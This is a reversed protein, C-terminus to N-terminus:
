LRITKNYEFSYILREKVKKGTLQSLADEYLELQKKYRTVLMDPDKVRDTKYDLLVLEGEEEWYADIVGQILVTEEKPFAPDLIDAPVGMFFPQERYLKGAKDAAKMRRGTECSLIAEMDKKNILATEEKKMRGEKLIRKMEEEIVDSTIDDPLKSHDLLEMFRHYATGREAGKGGDSKTRAEEKGADILERAEEDEYAAKKLESVSTKMYLGKIGPHAYLRTRGEEILSIIEPDKEITGKYLAEGKAAEQGASQKLEKAFCDADKLKICGAAKGSRRLVEIIWEFAANAKKITISELPEECYSVDPCKKVAATLILKERARTLAVYLVRMEEALMDDKIRDAILKKKFSKTKVRRKTDIADIACGYRMDTLCLKSADRRNFQRNLGMCICVPFELGKSKHITMLRVVDANEDLMMAEGYDIENEKVQEIYRIFSYLGHFSSEEYDAAKEMLIELNAARVNGRPMAMVMRLYGSDALLLAILERVSKYVALERYKKLWETFRAASGDTESRKVILDYLSEAKEEAQRAEAKIASLEEDTYLGLFATLTSYLPIDQRPNDIVSLANMVTRIETTAFYGSKAGCYLPIGRDRCAKKLESEYVATSKALICIDSYRLERLGKTEKDYVKLGEAFLRSIRDATLVCEAEIVNEADLDSGQMDECDLILVEPDYMNKEGKPYNLGAKLAAREDYDMGATSQRMINEFILNVFDIVEPRSRFNSNLDIRTNIGQDSYEEYKQMFIEPRALRFRYISQKVDGVCFLNDPRAISGIIYEQVYNSDQYEDICIYSFYDRYAKAADSPKGDEDLLIKLAYHEMDSFDLVNNERKKEGFCEKLKIALSALVRFARGTVLQQREIEAPSFAYNQGVELLLDKADTRLTKARERLAADESGKKSLAPISAAAMIEHRREYTDTSLMLAAIDDVAAIGERYAEPGGPLDCLGLAEACLRRVRKLSEDSKKNMEKFWKLESIESMTTKDYEAAAESLFREPYPNSMAFRYLSLIMEEAATERTGASFSDMFDIFDEDAKEYEEALVEELSEQLMLLSESEDPIRYGPDLGIASFDNKVVYLCFSDITTIQANHILAKQRDMNRDEPHEACYADIAAAIRERMEAAAAKTFTVILMKDIDMPDDKDSLLSIIRESLVATKGSGAAASVLLNCKRENIVKLQAPTYDVKSM